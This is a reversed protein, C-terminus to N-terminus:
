KLAISEATRFFGPVDTAGGWTRALEEFIQDLEDISPPKAIYSTAGHEFAKLVDEDESSSSFILVPIHKLEPDAKVEDLVEFGNKEPLNIDLLILDPTPEGAYDGQRKLYRMARVGDPATYVVVLPEKICAGVILAQAPNDEVLLVKIEKGM